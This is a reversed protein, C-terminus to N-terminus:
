PGSGMPGLVFALAYVVWRKPWPEGASIARAYRRRPSVSAM